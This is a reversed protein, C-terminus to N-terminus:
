SVGTQPENPPRNNFTEALELRFVSLIFKEIEVNYFSQNSIMHVLNSVLCDISALYDVSIMSVNLAFPIM